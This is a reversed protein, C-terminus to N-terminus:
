RRMAQRVLPRRSGRHRGRYLFAMAALFAAALGTGWAGVPVAAGAGDAPPAPDAAVAVLYAALHVAEQRSVPREGYAAQMLPFGPNEAASLLAPEGLRRGADTLDAALSGGRAGARHCAACPIGGATFRAGGHFLAQGRAPSPPELTTAMEAVQRERAAALRQKVAEDRLLAVLMAVQEDSLPGVNKEMREVAPALDAAPWGTAPALDPGSLFGEGITHCGACSSLYLDAARDPAAAADAADGAAEGGPADPAAPPEVGAAELAGLPAPPREGPVEPAIVPADAEGAPPAAPGPQGFALAAV